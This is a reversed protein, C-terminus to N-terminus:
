KESEKKLKTKIKDYIKLKAFIQNLTELAYIHLLILIPIFHILYRPAVEWFSFFLIFGLVSLRAIYNIEKEYKERKTYFISIIILLVTSIRQIQMFTLFLKNNKYVLDQISGIRIADDYLLGAIHYNGVNWIQLQKKTIMMIFKQPTDYKIMKQKWRKIDAQKKEEKTKFSATYEVDSDVFGGQSSTSMMVYHFFGYRENEIRKIYTCNYKFIFIELVIFCLLSFTSILPYVINKLTQKKLFIEYILIAVFIIGVTIKINMGLFIIFSMLISYWIKRNKNKAKLFKLYLYVSAIVFPMSFTDTYFIPVILYIIPMLAIDFLIFFAKNKGFIEKVTLVILLISIDIMFINFGIGVNILKKINFLNAVFYVFRLLYATPINNPYRCFYNLNKIEFSFNKAENHIIGFDWTPLVKFLYGSISQLIIIIFFVIIFMYNSINVKSIKNKLSYIIFIYLIACVDIFVNNIKTNLLMNTFLYFILIFFVFNFANTLFKKM